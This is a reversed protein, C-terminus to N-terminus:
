DNQKLPNGLHLGDNVLLDQGKLTNQNNAIYILQKTCEIWEWM